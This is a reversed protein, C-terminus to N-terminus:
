KPAEPQLQSALAHGRFGSAVMLCVECVPLVSFASPLCTFGVLRHRFDRRRATIDDPSFSRTSQAFQRSHQWYFGARASCGLSMVHCSFSDAKLCTGSRIPHQLSGKTRDWTPAQIPQIAADGLVFGRPRSALFLSCDTM